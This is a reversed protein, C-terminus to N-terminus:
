SFYWVLQCFLTCAVISINYVTFSCFSYFFFPLFIGCWRRQIDVQITMLHNSNENKILFKSNLFIIEFYIQLRSYAIWIHKFKLVFILFDILFFSIPPHPLFTPSSDWQKNLFWQLWLTPCISIFFLWFM